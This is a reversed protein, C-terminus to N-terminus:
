AGEFEANLIGYIREAKKEGIKEVEMLEEVDASMVGKITKFHAILKQALKAGIGPISSLILLQWQYTTYAKKLGVIRPLREKDEQEHEALRYVTYATDSASETRILQINYDVYLRTITGLTVNKSLRSGTEDGEILLIPKPFAAHLRAAQDFLRSNIISNEFDSVTKREICIRDSIIYDGVPIQAFALDTGHSQLGTIIDLNRERNDVIIKPKQM